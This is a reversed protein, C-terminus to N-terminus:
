HPRERLPGQADCIPCVALEEGFVGCTKCWARFGHFGEDFLDVETRAKEARQGEHTTEAPVMAFLTVEEGGCGPCETPVAYANTTALGKAVGGEAHCRTCISSTFLAASCAACTVEFIGDCFAEGDYAWALRGIPEGAMMPIRADVYARFALRHGGCTKCGSAIVDDLDKKTFAGM